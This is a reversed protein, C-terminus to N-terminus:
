RAFARRFEEESAILDDMRAQGDSRTGDSEARAVVSRSAIWCPDIRLRARSTAFGRRPSPVAAAASRAVGVRAPITVGAGVGQAHM